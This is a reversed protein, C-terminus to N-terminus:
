KQLNRKMRNEICLNMTEKPTLNFRYKYVQYTNYPIKYFTCLDKESNFYRGKYFCPNRKTFNTSSLCEILPYGKSKRNRFTNYNVKWYACMERENKFENGTHDTVFKRKRKGNLTDNKDNKEKGFLCEEFTFGRNQRKMFTDYKVNYYECLSKITYFVKGEFEIVNGLRDQKNNSYKEVINDVTMGKLICNYFTNVKINYHKCFATVSNFENGENDKIKYCTLSQKLSMGLKHFRYRFEDYTVNYFACMEQISNFNNGKYDTYKM